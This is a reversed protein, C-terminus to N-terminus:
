LWYYDRQITPIVFNGKAFIDELAMTASETGEIAVM